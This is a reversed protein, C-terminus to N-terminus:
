ASGTCQERRAGTKALRKENPVAATVANNGGFAAMGVEGRVGLLLDFEQAEHAAAIRLNAPLENEGAAAEAGNVFKERRFYDVGREFIGVGIRGRLDGPATQVLGAADTGVGQIEPGGDIAGFCPIERQFNQREATNVDGAANGDFDEFFHFVASEEVGELVFPFEFAEEAVDGDGDDEVFGGGEETGGVFGEGGGVLLEWQGPRNYPRLM